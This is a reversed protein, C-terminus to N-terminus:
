WMLLLRLLGRVGLLWIEESSQENLSATALGKGATLGFRM